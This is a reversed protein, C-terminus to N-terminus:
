NLKTKYDLFSRRIHVFLMMRTNIDSSQETPLFRNYNNRFQITWRPWDAQEAKADLKGNCCLM